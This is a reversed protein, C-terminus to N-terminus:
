GYDRLRPWLSSWPTLLGSCRWVPQGQEDDNIDLLNNLRTELTLTRCAGALKAKDFGIALFATASAPPPGWLWYANQVGFVHPLGLQPGFRDVAGAEGYNSAVIATSQKTDSPLRGYVRAVEDVVPPWGITEGVDYNFAVIPTRHVVGAPLLPLTVPLATLSLVFGATLLIRHRPRRRAWDVTPEAGAALLFPLMAGLYYPKGGTVLFALALVIWAVGLARFPRLRPRRFLCVLGAIWVPALYPSVLVLQEPLLLWRPASTGSGGHAISRAIAIQPWDHRAQWVLYPMWLLAALLGGAYLWTSMLLHRPGAIAIGAVIAFALFGVLDSINLGVGAVAGMALWLRTDETRLLRTALLLMILWITLNFAATSLLHGTALVLTGLATCGAAVAQAAKTAGLERAIVGTLLVTGAAALDSPLRLVVLSHPAVASMLRALAPVLAPQDPYGWALHRGAALFYLEDRHYGYRGSTALLALALLASIGTVAVWAFGLRPPAPETDHTSTAM